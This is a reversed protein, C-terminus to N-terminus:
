ITLVYNIYARAITEEVSLGIEEALAEILEPQALREGKEIWHLTGQSIGLRRSMDRQTLGLANRHYLFARGFFRSLVRSKM